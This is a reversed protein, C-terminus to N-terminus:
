EPQHSTFGPFKLIEKKLTLLVYAADAIAQQEERGDRSQSLAQLRRYMAAETEAILVALKKPDLEQVAARFPEQWEPYELQMMTVGSESVPVGLLAFARWNLLNMELQRTLKSCGSPGALWKNRVTTNALLDRVSKALRPMAM